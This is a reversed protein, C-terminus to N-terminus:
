KSGVAQSADKGSSTAIPDIQLKEDISMGKRRLSSSKFLSTRKGEVFSAIM